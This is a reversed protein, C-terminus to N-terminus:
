VGFSTKWIGVEMMKTYFVTGKATMIAFVPLFMEGNDSLINKIGRHVAEHIQM